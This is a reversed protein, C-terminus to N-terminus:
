RRESGGSLPVPATAPETFGWKARLTKKVSGRLIPTALIDRGNRQLTERGYPMLGEYVDAWLPHEEGLAVLEQITQELLEEKALAEENEQTKLLAKRQAAEHQKAAVLDDIAKQRLDVYGKPKQYYGNRMLSKMWYIVPDSVPIGSKDIIGGQELQWDLYRLTETVLMETNEDITWKQDLYAKRVQLLHGRNLGAQAVHPWYERIETLGLEWLSPNKNDIEEKYIAQGFLTDPQEPSSQSTGQSEQALLVPERPGRYEIELGLKGKSSYPKSTVLGMGVLKRLIHRITGYPISLRRSLDAYSTVFYSETQCLALLKKQQLTKIGSSELLIKPNRRREEEQGSSTDLLSDMERDVNPSGQGIDRDMQVGQGFVMDKPCNVHVPNTSLTDSRATLLSGQRNISPAPAHKANVASPHSSTHVPKESM